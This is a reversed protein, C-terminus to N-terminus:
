AHSGEFRNDWFFSCQESPKLMCKQTEWSISPFVNMNLTFRPMHGRLDITKSFHGLVHVRLRWNSWLVFLGVFHDPCIFIISGWLSSRCLHSVISGLMRSTEQDSWGTDSVHGWFQSWLLQDSLRGLGWSIGNSTCQSSSSCGGAQGDIVPVWFSVYWEKEMNQCVRSFPSKRLQMMGSLSSWRQYTKAARPVLDRSICAWHIGVPLLSSWLTVLAFAEAKRWQIWCPIVCSTLVWTHRPSSLSTTTLSPPSGLIENCADLCQHIVTLHDIILVM